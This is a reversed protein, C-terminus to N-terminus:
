TPYTELSNCRASWGCSVLAELLAPPADAGEGFLATPGASTMSRSSLPSLSSCLAKDGLDDSLEVWYISEKWGCARLCSALCLLRGWMDLYKKRLDQLDLSLTAEFGCLPLLVDMSSSPEEVAHDHV